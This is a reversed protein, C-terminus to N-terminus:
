LLAAPRPQNITRRHGLPLRPPERPLELLLDQRGALVRLRPRQDDGALKAQGGRRDPFYQAAVTNGPEPQWRTLRNLAVLAGPGALEDVDVDLSQPAEPRDPFRDERVAHM